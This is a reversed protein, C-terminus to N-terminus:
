NARNRHTLTAGIPAPSARVDTLDLPNEEGEAPVFGDM